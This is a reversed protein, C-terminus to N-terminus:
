GRRSESAQRGLDAPTASSSIQMVSEWAGSGFSRQMADLVEATALAERVSPVADIGELVSRLFLKAEIVKLDNYSMPNGADPQFRGFDGHMPGVFVRRFGADHDSSRYLQLEGM